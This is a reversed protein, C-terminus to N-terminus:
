TFAYKEAGSKVYVFANPLTGDSNVAGDEALVPSDHKHVCVPDQDMQIRALSPKPGDWRVRGSVSGTTAPDIPTTGQVAPSEDSPKPGCAGLAFALFTIAALRPMRFGTLSPM